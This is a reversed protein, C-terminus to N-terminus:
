TVVFGAQRFATRQARVRRMWHVHNSVKGAVARGNVYMTKLPLVVRAWFVPDMAVCFIFAVCAWILVKGCSAPPLLREQM